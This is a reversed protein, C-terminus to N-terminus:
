GRRRGYVWGWDRGWADAIREVRREGARPPTGPAAVRFAREASAAARGALKGGDPDLRYRRITEFTVPAYGLGPDASVSGFRDWRMMARGLLTDQGFFGAFTEPRSRFLM